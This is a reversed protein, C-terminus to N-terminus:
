TRIKKQPHYTFFNENINRFVKGQEFLIIRDNHNYAVKKKYYFKDLFVEIIILSFILSILLLLFNKKM